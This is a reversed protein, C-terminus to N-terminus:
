DDYRFDAGSITLWWSAFESAFGTHKFWRRPTCCVSFLIAASLPATLVFVLWKARNEPTM